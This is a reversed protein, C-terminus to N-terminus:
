ASRRRQYTTTAGRKKQQQSTNIRRDTIPEDAGDWM